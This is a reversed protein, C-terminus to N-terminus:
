QGPRNLVLSLMLVTFGAAVCISQIAVSSTLSTSTFQHLFGGVAMGLTVLGVGVSLGGLANVGTRRYAKLAYWAIAAGLLLSVANTVAIITTSSLM